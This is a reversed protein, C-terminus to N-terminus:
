NSAPSGDHTSFFIDGQWIEVCDEQAAAEARELRRARAAVLALARREGSLPDV